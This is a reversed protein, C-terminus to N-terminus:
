VPTLVMKTSSANQNGFQLVLAQKTQPVVFLSTAAAIAAIPLAFLLSSKNM